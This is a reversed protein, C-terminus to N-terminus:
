VNTITIVVFALVIVLVIGVIVVAVIVRTVLDGIDGLFIPILLGTISSSKSILFM